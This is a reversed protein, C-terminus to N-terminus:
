HMGFAGSLVGRGSAHGEECPLSADADLAGDGRAYPGGVRGAAVAQSPEARGRRGPLRHGELCEDPSRRTSDAGALHEGRGQGHCGGRGRDGGMAQAPAGTAGRRELSAQLPRAPRETASEPRRAQPPAVRHGVHRHRRPGDPRGLLGADLRSPAHLSSLAAAARALPPVLASLRADAVSLVGAQGRRQAHAVAGPSSRAPGSTRRPPHPAPACRSMAKM